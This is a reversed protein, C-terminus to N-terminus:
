QAIQPQFAEGDIPVLGMADTLEALSDDRTPIVKSRVCRFGRVVLMGADLCIRRM